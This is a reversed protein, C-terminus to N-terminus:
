ILFPVSVCLCLSFLIWTQISKWWNPLLYILPWGFYPKQPPLLSYINEMCALHRPLLRVLYSASMKAPDKSGGHPLLGSSWHELQSQVPFWLFWISFFYIVLYSSSHSSLSLFLLPLVHFSSFNKGSFIFRWILNGFCIFSFIELFSQCCFWYDCLSIVKSLLFCYFLRYSYNFLSAMGRNFFLPNISFLINKLAVTLYREVGILFTLIWFVLVM